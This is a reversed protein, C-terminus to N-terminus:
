WKSGDLNLQNKQLYNHLLTDKANWAFSKFTSGDKGILLSKIHSNGVTNSSLLQQAVKTGVAGAGIVLAQM